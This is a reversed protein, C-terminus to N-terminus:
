EDFSITDAVKNRITLLKKYLRQMATRRKETHNRVANEYLKDLKETQEQETYRAAIEVSAVSFQTRVDNNSLISVVKEAISDPNLEAYYGNEGDHVVESVEKDTLVIPLGALAAEHLVLGQTDTMSPFVFVSSAEYITGLTERPLAGTFVISNSASSQAALKELTERYEFDGVYMLKAHPRSQLVKEIMPVLIDLNKEAGLRGVYTVIEDNEDFGYKDRFEALSSETAAPLADVGTPLLEIPYSYDEGEMWSELQKKSKRSLAIVVDCRSYMITIMAEIIDQNWQTVGRRPIYLKILERLDRGHFKTTFPTLPLLMLLGPLVGPYHRVYEYIDTSHQTVLTAGTKYAANIGLIGIQGPTFIHVVDLDLERIKRMASPPFFFSFNYDDYFAGKVSPFRLIGREEDQSVKTPTVGDAPCFVYVEHGLEELHKKTIDIVYVIGNISPSYTDTFLGIRM